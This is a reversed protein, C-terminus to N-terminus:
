LMGLRHALHAQRKGLVSSLAAFFVQVKQTVNNDEPGQNYM